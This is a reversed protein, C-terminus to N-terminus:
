VKEQTSPKEEKQLKIIKRVETTILIIAPIIVMLMFGFPTGAFHLFYGYYPITLLLSGQIQDPQVVWPDPNENADGKTKFYYTDNEVIKDIVRHLTKLDSRQFVIISNVKVDEPNVREVVVISGVPITPEMSGSMIISSYYGNVIFPLAYIIAPTLLAVVVLISLLEKIKKRM